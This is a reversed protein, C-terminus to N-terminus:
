ADDWWHGDRLNYWNTMKAQCIPCLNITDMIMEFCCLDWHFLHGCESLKVDCNNKGCKTCNTEMEEQSAPGM